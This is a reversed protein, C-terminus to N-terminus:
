YPFGSKERGVTTEAGHGSWIVTDDPLTFIRERLTKLLTDWDGGWLDTRGVGDRFITDGSVLVFPKSRVLLGIGGPSHGPLEIVEAHLGGFSVTDGEKVFVTPDEDADAIGMADAMGPGMLAEVQKRLGRWLPLDAAHLVVPVGWRRGLSASQLCHDLHGHTHVVAVPKVGLAEVRRAAGEADMGPDVVLAERTASDELILCNTEFPGLPVRHVKVAAEQPAPVPLASRCAAALAPLLALLFRPWPAM